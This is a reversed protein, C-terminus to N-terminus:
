TLLTTAAATLQDDISGRMNRIRQLYERIHAMQDEGPRHRLLQNLVAHCLSSDFPLGADGLAISLLKGFVSVSGQLSICEVLSCLWSQKKAAAIRALDVVCLRNLKEKVLGLVILMTPNGGAVLPACGPDRILGPENWVLQFAQTIM